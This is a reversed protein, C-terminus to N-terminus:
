VVLLELSSQGLRRPGEPSIWITDGLMLGADQRWRPNYLDINTGFVMNAQLAVPPIQSLLGGTEPPTTVTPFEPSSLGHGHLGCESYAMGSRHVPARFAEVVEGLPTGPYMKSVGEEFSQLCVGYLEKFERRPKGLSISREVGALYGGYCAHYETIVLDGRQLPRTTPVAPPRKQAFPNPFPGSDMLIMSPYEGGNAIEAQVMSAYLDCEKAGPRAAQLLAELMLDGLRAAERLFQIEEQSKILRIEELLPTTEVLNAAPLRKLLEAYERYLIVDQQLAGWHGVIGLNAKELNLEQIAEVIGQPGEYPRIQKVWHQCEEWYRYSFKPGGLYLPEGDLPFIAVGREGIHTVYRLNAATQNWSRDSGWIILADLRWLSMAQRITQWRRDREGLSLQPLYQAPVSRGARTAKGGRPGKRGVARVM